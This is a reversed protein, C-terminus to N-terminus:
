QVRQAPPSPERQAPIALCDEALPCRRERRRDERDFELCARLAGLCVMVFAIGGAMSAISETVGILLAPLGFSGWCGTLVALAWRSSRRGGLALVVGGTCAFLAGWVQWPATTWALLDHPGSFVRPAYGAPNEAALALGFVVAGAGHLLAASTPATAIARLRRWTPRYTM